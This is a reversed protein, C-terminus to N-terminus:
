YISIVRTAVWPSADKTGNPFQLGKSWVFQLRIVLPNQKCVSLDVFKFSVSLYRSHYRELDQVSLLVSFKPILGRRVEGSESNWFRAKSNQFVHVVDVHPMTIVIVEINEYDSTWAGDWSSNVHSCCQIPSTVMRIHLALFSEMSCIFLLKGRPICVEYEIPPM